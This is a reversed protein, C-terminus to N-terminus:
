KVGVLHVNEVWSVEIIWISHDSTWRWYILTMATTVYAVRWLLLRMTDGGTTSQMLQLRGYMMVAALLCVHLLNTVYCWCSKLMNWIFNLLDFQCLLFNRQHHCNFMNQWQYRLSPCSQCIVVTFCLSMLWEYTLVFCKIVFNLDSSIGLFLPAHSKRSYSCLLCLCTSFLNSKIKNYMFEWCFDLDCAEM